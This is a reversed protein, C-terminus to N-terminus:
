CRDSDSSRDERSRRKGGLSSQCQHRGTQSESETVECQKHKGSKALLPVVFQYMFGLIADVAEGSSPQEVGSLDNPALDSKSCNM